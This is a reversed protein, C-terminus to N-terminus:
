KRHPRSLSSCSKKLPAHRHTTDKPEDESTARCPNTAPAAPCVSFLREHGVLLGTTGTTTPGAIGVGLRKGIEVLRRCVAVLAARIEILRVRVYIPVGGIAVLTGGIAVLVSGIM